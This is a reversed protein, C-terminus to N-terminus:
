RKTGDGDCSGTNGSGTWGIPGYKGTKNLQLIDQGLVSVCTLWYDGRDEIGNEEDIFTYTGQSLDNADLDIIFVFREDFTIDHGQISLRTDSVKTVIFEEDGGSNFGPAFCDYRVDWTGVWSDATVNGPFFECETGANGLDEGLDITFNSPTSPVGAINASINSLLVQPADEAFEATAM